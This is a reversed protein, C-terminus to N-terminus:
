KWIREFQEESFADFHSFVSLKSTGYFGPYLGGSYLDGWIYAMRNVLM